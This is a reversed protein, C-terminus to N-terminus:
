CRRSGTECFSCMRRRPALFTQSNENYTDLRRRRRRIENDEYATSDHKFIMTEPTEVELQKLWKARQPQTRRCDKLPKESSHVTLIARAKQSM